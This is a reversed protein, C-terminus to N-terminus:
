ATLAAISTPSPPPVPHDGMITRQQELYRDFRCLLFRALPLSSSSPYFLKPNLFPPLL